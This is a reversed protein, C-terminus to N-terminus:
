WQFYGVLIRDDVIKENRKKEADPGSSQVTVTGGSKNPTKVVTAGDGNYKILGLSTGDSNM